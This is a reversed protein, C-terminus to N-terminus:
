QLNDYYRDVPNYTINDKSNVFPPTFHRVQCLQSIRKQYYDPKSFINQPSNSSLLDIWSNEEIAEISEEIEDDFEMMNKTHNHTIKRRVAEKEFDVDPKPSRFLLRAGLNISKMYENKFSKLDSISDVQKQFLNKRPQYYYKKNVKPPSNSYYMPRPQPFSFADIEQLIIPFKPAESIGPLMESARLMLSTIKRLKLTGSIFIMDLSRFSLSPFCLTFISSMDICLNVWVNRSFASNPLRAHMANKIVQKGQTFILRRKISESDTTTLEITLLKGPFIFVQLVLYPRVVELTEKSSRPITISGTNLNLLYGKCHHDYVFETKGQLLCGKIGSKNHTNMIESYQVHNRM